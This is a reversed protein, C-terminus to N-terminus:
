NSEICPITQNQTEIQITSHNIGFNKHIVHRVEDLIQPWLQHNNVIVHATLLITDSSISWIHLNHINHVGGINKITNEVQTYDIHEPNAEMLILWSERILNIIAISILVCIFLSLIPDIPTWNTFYVIIGSVLVAISGLLDGMVHLLAARMNLTKEGQHLIWATVINTILGIIAVIIVTESTITSPPHRLRDIAEIAINAIIIVLITSSLWAALIEIRGFGYTHRKTTPRSKLWAAFAALVLASADTVMHGADSLLTLSGSRWGTIAEIVGFAAVFIAAYFATNKSSPCKHQHHCHKHTM